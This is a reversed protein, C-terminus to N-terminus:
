RERERDHAPWLRAYRHRREILWGVDVDEHKSSLKFVGIALVLGAM